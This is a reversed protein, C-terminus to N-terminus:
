RCVNREINKQKSIRAFPTKNQISPSSIALRTEPDNMFIRFVVEKFDSPLIESL